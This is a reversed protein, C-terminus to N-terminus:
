GIWGKHLFFLLSPSIPLPLSVSLCLPIPPPQTSTTKKKKLSERSQLHSAGAIFEQITISQKYSLIIVFYAILNQFLLVQAFGHIVVFSPFIVLVVTHGHYLTLLSFLSPLSASAM